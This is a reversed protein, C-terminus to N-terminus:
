AVHRVQQVFVSMLWVMKVVLILFEVDAVGVGVHIEVLKLDLTRAPYM